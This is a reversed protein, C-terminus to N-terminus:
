QLMMIRCEKLAHMRRKDQQILNPKYCIFYSFLISFAPLTCIKEFFCSLRVVDSFILTGSARVKSSFALPPLNQPDHTCVFINASHHANAMYSTIKIEEIVDHM